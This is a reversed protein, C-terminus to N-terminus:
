VRRLNTDTGNHVSVYCITLNNRYQRAAWAPEALYAFLRHSCSKGVRESTAHHGLRARRVKESESCCPKPRSIGQLSM